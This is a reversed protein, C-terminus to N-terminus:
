PSRPPAATAAADIGGHVAHLVHRRRLRGPRTIAAKRGRSSARSTSIAPSTVRMASRLCPAITPVEASRRVRGAGAVAPGVQLDDGQAAVDVRPEGLALGALDLRGQQRQGPQLPEAECTPVGTGSSSISGATPWPATQMSHRTSSARMIPQSAAMLWAGVAVQTAASCAISATSSPEHRVGIAPWAIRSLSPASYRRPRIALGSPESSIAVSRRPGALRRRPSPGRRRRLASAGRRGPNRREGSM